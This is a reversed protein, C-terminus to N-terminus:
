YALSALGVGVGTGLLYGAATELWQHGSPHQVPHGGPRIYSHLLPISVGSATGILGGVLVDSPFHQDAKVRLDGTAGALLAGVAAVAVHEKWGADPHSLLNDTAAFSAATFSITAHGSPMSLFAGDATVDYASGTPRESAPLYTFPRPRDASRKLLQSGAEALLLSEGYLVLPRRVVDGFGHLGPQTLLALIPAGVMTAALTADSAKDAGTSPRGISRRDIGLSINSPDLGQPPVSQHTISLGRSLLYAGVSAATVGGDPLWGLRPQASPVSGDADVVAGTGAPGSGTWIADGLTLQARPGSLERPHWSPFGPEITAVTPALTQPSQSSAQQASTLLTIGVLLTRFALSM